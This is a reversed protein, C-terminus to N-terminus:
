KINMESQEVTSKMNTMMELVEVSQWAFYTYFSLMDFAGVFFTSVEAYDLFTKAKFWIFCTVSCLWSLVSILGITFHVRHIISQYRKLKSPLYQEPVAKIGSVMFGREIMVLSAMVILLKIKHNPSKENSKM